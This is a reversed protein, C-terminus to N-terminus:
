PLARPSPLLTQPQGPNPSPTVSCLVGTRHASHYTQLPHTYAQGFGSQGLGLTVGAMLQPSWTTPQYQCMSQLLHMASICPLLIHTCPAGPFDTHNESLEETFRFSHKLQFLGGMISPRPSCFPVTSVAMFGRVSLVTSICPGGM